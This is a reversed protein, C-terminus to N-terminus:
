ERLFTRLLDANSQTLIGGIKNYSSMVTWPNSHQLCIEFGTLYIERLAKVPIRSDNNLKNVQQNTAVVPCSEVLPVM